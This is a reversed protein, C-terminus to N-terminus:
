SDRSIKSSESDSPARTRRVIIWTSIVCVPLALIIGLIAGGIICGAFGYFAPKLNRKLFGTTLPVLGLLLGIVANIIVGYILVEQTSMRTLDM